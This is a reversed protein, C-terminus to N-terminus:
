FIYVQKGISSAILFLESDNWIKLLMMIYTGHVIYLIDYFTDMAIINNTYMYTPGDKLKSQKMICSRQFLIM